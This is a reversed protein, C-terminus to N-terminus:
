AKTHHAVARNLALNFVPRFMVKLIAHERVQKAVAVGYRRYLAMVVSGIRGKAFERNLWARLLHTKISDKGFLVEAIWCAAGAASAGAGIMQGVFGMTNAKGAAQENAVNGATTAAGGYGTLANAVQNLSLGIGTSGMSALAPFSSTYSKTVLNGTQAAKSVDANEKALRAEGGRPANQDIQNKIADTQESIQEAAPSIARFIENPDGSSLKMYYDNAKKFGPLTIGRLEDAQDQQHEALGLQKQSINNQQQVSADSPGFDSCLTPSLYRSPDGEFMAPREVYMVLRRNLWRM